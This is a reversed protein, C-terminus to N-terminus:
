LKLFKRTKGNITLFYIGRKFKSVNITEKNSNIVFNGMLEGNASIINAINGINTEVIITQTAPQYTVLLQDKNEYNTSEVDTENDNLGLQKKVEEYDGFYIYELYPLYIGYFDESDLVKQGNNLDVSLFTESINNTSYNFKIDRIQSLPVVIISHTLGYYSIYNERIKILLVNRGALQINCM